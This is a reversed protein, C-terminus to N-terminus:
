VGDLTRVSFVRWNRLKAGKKIEPLPEGIYFVCSGSGSVFARSGLYEVFRKVEGIEPYLECAIDGLVNGMRETSGEIIDKIIMDAEMEETLMDDRICSYVRRTSSKVGPYIVTLEVELLNVYQLIDGKGKGIASGEKLFFPADSSIQGVLDRLEEESLPSGLLENVANLTVALNSSGGGLGSGEPIHKEIYISFPIDTGTKESFIKLGKYVINDEQPIGTSTTVTFPGEKIYIVDYLSIKRFLTVINYYGDMRRGTIWLGFNVKAPSLLEIM